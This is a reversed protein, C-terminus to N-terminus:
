TQGRGVSFSLQAAVWDKWKSPMMMIMDTLLNPNSETKTKLAVQTTACDVPVDGPDAGPEVVGLWVCGPACDGFAGGGGDLVAGEGLVVVGCFWGPFVVGLPCVGPLVFGFLEFGFEFFGFAFGFVVFGFLLGFVVFRFLVVGLPVLGFL